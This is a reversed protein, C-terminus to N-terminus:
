LGCHQQLLWANGWLIGAMPGGSCLRDHRGGVIQGPFGLLGIAV